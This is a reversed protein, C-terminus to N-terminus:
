NRERLREFVSFDQAKAFDLGFHVCSWAVSCSAECTEDVVRHNEAIAREDIHGSIERSRIGCTGSVGCLGNLAQDFM